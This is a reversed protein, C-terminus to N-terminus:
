PSLPPPAVVRSSPPPARSTKCRHFTPLPASFTKAMSFPTLPVVLKHTTKVHYSSTKVLNPPPPPARVFNESKLLFLPPPPALFTKLPDLHGVHNPRQCKNNLNGSCPNSGQLCCCRFHVNPHGGACFTGWHDLCSTLPLGAFHYSFWAQIFVPNNRICM